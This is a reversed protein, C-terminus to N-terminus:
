TMRSVDSNKHGYEIVIPSAGHRIMRNLAQRQLFVGAAQHQFLRSKVRGGFIAKVRYTATEALSRRHYGSQEKWKKREARRM